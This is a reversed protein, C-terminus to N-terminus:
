RDLVDWYFEYQSADLSLGKAPFGFVVVGAFGKQPILFTPISKWDEGSCPRWAASVGIVADCGKAAEMNAIDDIDIERRGARSETYPVLKIDTFQKRLMRRVLTFTRDVQWGGHGEM